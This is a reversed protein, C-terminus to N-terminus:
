KRIKIIIAPFVVKAVKKYDVSVSDKVAHLVGYRAPFHLSTQESM